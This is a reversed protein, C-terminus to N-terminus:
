RVEQTLRHCNVMAPYQVHGRWTSAQWLGSDQWTRPCKARSEAGLSQVRGHSASTAVHCCASARRCRQSRRGYSAVTWPQSQRAPGRHGLAERCQVVVWFAVDAVGIKTSSAAHTRCFQAAALPCASPQPSPERNLVQQFTCPRAGSHQPARPAHRGMIHPTACHVPPPAVGTLSSALDGAFIHLSVHSSAEVAVRHSTITLGRNLGPNCHVPPPAVRTRSSASDGACSPPLAAIGCHSRVRGHM